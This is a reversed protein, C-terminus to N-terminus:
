AGPESDNTRMAAASPAVLAAAVVVTMVAVLPVNFHSGSVPFLQWALNSTMHFLVMAFVSGGLHAFLWVMILRMAVTGLSWWAIWPVSRGVQLLAGWHWVAWAAGVVLGARLVGWRQLLPQTAYGSWGLEECLAAAFFGAALLLTTTLSFSPEPVHSGTLRLVFYSAVVVAPYLLLVPVYWATAPVRRFDFSRRLLARVAAGGGRRHELIAAAAAPCVVALGALPVGPVLQGEALADLALFPM